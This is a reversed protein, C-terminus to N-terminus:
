NVKYLYIHTNDDYTTKTSINKYYKLKEHNVQKKFILFKIPNNSNKKQDLINNILKNELNNDYMTNDCYFITGEELKQEFFDGKILKLLNKQKNDLLIKSLEVAVNHRKEIIEIGISKIGYKLIMYFLLLGRGSGLDIFVDNKEVINDFIKGLESHLLEGYTTDYKKHYIGNVIIHRVKEIADDMKKLILENHNGGKQKKLNEYKLKYKLYKNKYNTTQVM